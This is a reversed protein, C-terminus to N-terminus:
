LPFVNTSVNKHRRIHSWGEEGGESIVAGENGRVYDKKERHPLYLKAMSVASLPPDLYSSLFFSIYEM